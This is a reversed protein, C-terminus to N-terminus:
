FRALGRLGIGVQQVAQDADASASGSTAAGIVRLPWRGQAALPRVLFSNGHTHTRAM